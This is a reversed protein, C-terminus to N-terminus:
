ELCRSSEYAICIYSGQPGDQTQGSCNMVQNDEVPGKAHDVASKAGAHQEVEAFSGRTLRRPGVSSVERYLRCNREGMPARVELGASLPRKGRVLKCLETVLFSSSPFYPDGVIVERLM